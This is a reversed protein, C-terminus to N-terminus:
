ELWTYSFKCYWKMQTRYSWSFLQHKTRSYELWQLFLNTQCACWYTRNSLIKKWDDSFTFKNSDMLRFTTFHFENIRLLTYTSKLPMNPGRTQKQQYVVTKHWIKWQKILHSIFHTKWIYKPSTNWSNLPINLKFSNKLTFNFKGTKFTLLNCRSIILSNVM